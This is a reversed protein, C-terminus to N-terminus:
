YKNLNEPLKQPPQKNKSNNIFFSHLVVLSVLFCMRSMFAFWSVFLGFNFRFLIIIFYFLCVLYSFAVIGFFVLFFWRIILQSAM